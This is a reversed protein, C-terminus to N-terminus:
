EADLFKGAFAQRRYIRRFDAVKKQCQFVHLFIHILFLVKSLKCSFYKRAHTQQGSLCIGSVCPLASLLIVPGKDYCYFFHPESFLFPFAFCYLCYSLVFGTSNLESCSQSAVSSLLLYYLQVQSLLPKWRDLESKLEVPSSFGNVSPARSFSFNIMLKIYIFCQRLNKKRGERLDFNDCTFNFFM